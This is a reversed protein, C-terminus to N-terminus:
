IRTPKPGHPNSDRRGCRRDRHDHDAAGDLAPVALMAARRPLSNVAIRVTELVTFGPEFGPEGALVAFNSCGAISPPGEPGDKAQAAHDRIAEAEALVGAALDDALLVAYPETLEAGVVRAVTKGAAEDWEPMVYLKKFFAQNLGRKTAEDADRYVAAVDEALELAMRLLKADLALSDETEALSEEAARVEEKLRAREERFADPSVDDGEEVHLRILRAQQTKLKDILESKAAKVQGVAQQSVAVLAEIATTRKEIDEPTLQVPREAYYRSTAEEILEPRINARMTCTKGKTRDVCFYYAYRQGNKGRSLGYVLRKGCEGCFVSGKLYHQHKQSREGSVRKEDLLAQVRDFTDEDTLPEHRGRFTQEDDTGRKYVIWGAYYPDRLIRQVASTNVKHPPRNKRPRSRLGLRYLETCLQSLSYIGSAYLQFALTLFPAREADHSVSPVQRGDPLREVDNLYGLRTWGYTGGSKAKQYIGQAVNRGTKMSEYQNNLAFMGEMFFSEPTDEGIMPETISVIRAGASKVLERTRWHDLQNRAWRNLAWVIVYDIHTSERANLAKLEDLMALFDTRKHLDVFASKGPDSFERVIEADLQTAKDDAAERQAAISLGDRDYGTNVQSESSVRLYVFARKSAAEPAGAEVAKMYKNSPL